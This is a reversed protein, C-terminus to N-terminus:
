SIKENEVNLKKLIRVERHGPTSYPVYLTDTNYYRLSPYYTSTIYTIENM